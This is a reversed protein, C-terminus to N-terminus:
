EKYQINAQTHCVSARVVVKLSAFNSHVFYFESVGSGIESTSSVTHVFIDSMSLNGGDPRYSSKSVAFRGVYCLFTRISIIVGQCNDSIVGLLWRCVNGGCSAVCRAFAGNARRGFFHVLRDPSSFGFSSTVRDIAHGSFLLRGGLRRLLHRGVLRATSMKFRTGMSGGLAVHDIRLVSTCRRIQRRAHVGRRLLSGFQFTFGGGTVRTPLYCTTTCAHGVVLLLCCLLSIVVGCASSIPGVLRCGVGKLLQVCRGVRSRATGVCPPASARCYCLLHFIFFGSTVFAHVFSRHFVLFACSLTARSM